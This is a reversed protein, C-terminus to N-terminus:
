DDGGQKRVLRWAVGSGLLLSALPFFTGIIAEGRVSMGFPGKVPIRAIEVRRGEFDATLAGATATPSAASVRVAEVGGISVAIAKPEDANVRDLEDDSLSMVDKRDIGDSQTFDVAIAVADVDDVQVMWGTEPLSGDERVEVCALWGEEKAVGPCDTRPDARLGGPSSLQARRTTGPLFISGERRFIVKVVAPQKRVLADPISVEIREEVRDPEGMGSSQSAQPFIKSVEISAHGPDAALRQTEMAVLTTWAAYGILTGVLGGAVVAIVSRM